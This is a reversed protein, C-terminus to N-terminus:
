QITQKKLDVEKQYNILEMILKLKLEELISITERVDRTNMGDTEHHYTSSGDKNDFVIELKYKRM